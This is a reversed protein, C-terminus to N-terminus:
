MSSVRRWKEKSLRAAVEVAEEVSVRFWEGNVRRDAFHAHMEDEIDEPWAWEVKLTFPCGTQMTVLRWDPTVSKGFKVMDTGECSVIYTFTPPSYALNDEFLRKFRCQNPHTIAMYCDLAVSGRIPRKLLPSDITAAKHILANV